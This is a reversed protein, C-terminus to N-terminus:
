DAYTHAPWPYPLDEQAVSGKDSGYLDCLQSIKCNGNKKYHKVILHGLNKNILATFEQFNM